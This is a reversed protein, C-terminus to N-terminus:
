LVVKSTSKKALHILMQKKETFTWIKLLATHTLDVTENWKNKEQSTYSVLNETYQLISKLFRNLSLSLNNEKDM